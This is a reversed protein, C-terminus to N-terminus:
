GEEQLIRRAFALTSVTVINQLMDEVTLWHLSVADDGAQEQGSLDFARFISLNYVKGYLGEQSLDITDVLRLRNCSLGTEEMLERQAAQEASEGAEVGGGPFALSGKLPEKGRKVLLFRNENRCIISAGHAIVPLPSVVQTM